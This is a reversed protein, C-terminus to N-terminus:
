RRNKKKSYSPTEVAVPETSIEVPAEEVPAEEIVVPTEEEVLEPAAVVVPAPAPAPVPALEPVPAAVAPAAVPSPEPAGTGFVRAYETRVLSAARGTHEADYEPAPVVQGSAVLRAVRADQLTDMGLCRWSHTTGVPSFVLPEKRADRVGQVDIVYGNINRLWFM